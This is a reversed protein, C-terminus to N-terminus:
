RVENLGKILAERRPCEPRSWCNQLWNVLNPKGSLSIKAISNSSMIMAVNLDAVSFESGLMYPSAALKNDLVDFPGNLVARSRAVEDPTWMPAHKLFYRELESGPAHDMNSVGVVLFPVELRTTAWFSWQWALAEGEQTAPYLRGLGFKKALYLNIAMTEWLVFEGDKISPMLGNPNIALYEPSKWSPDLFGDTRNNQFQLGLERCMWAVKWTRTVEINGYLTLDDAM